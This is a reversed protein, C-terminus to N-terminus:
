VATSCLTTVEKGAQAVGYAIYAIEELKLVSPAGPDPIPKPSLEIQQRTALNYTSTYLAFAIKDNLM